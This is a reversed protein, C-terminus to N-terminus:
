KSHGRFVHIEASIYPTNTDKTIRHPGHSTINKFAMTVMTLFRLESDILPQLKLPPLLLSLVFRYLFPSFPKGDRRRTRDPKLTKLLELRLDRSAPYSLFLEDCANIPKKEVVSIIHIRASLNKLLRLQQLVSITQLLYM